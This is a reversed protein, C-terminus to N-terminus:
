TAPDAVPALSWATATGRPPECLLPTANPTRFNPELGMAARIARFLGGHALVLIPPPNSTARNIAAVGRTRLEAFSEAGEPTSKGEIWDTFWQGAIPKGEMVGFACERLDAEIEITAGITKAVIDATVRARGIPSCIIQRIGRNRLREAATHAQAIGNENLPVEVAGQALSKVNWDTEGHRLFWFTVPTLEPAASV